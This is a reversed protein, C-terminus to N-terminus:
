QAKSLKLSSEQVQFIKSSVGKFSYYTEFQISEIQILKLEKKVPSTIGTSITVKEFRQDIDKIYGEVLDDGKNALKIYVRQPTDLMKILIIRLDHSSIFSELRRIKQHAENESVITRFTKRLSDKYLSQFSQVRDIHILPLCNNEHIVGNVDFKKLVIMKQGNIASAFINEVCTLFMTHGAVESTIGVVNGRHFSETLCKLIQSQDTIFNLNPSNM